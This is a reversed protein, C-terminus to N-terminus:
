SCLIRDFLSSKLARLIKPNLIEAYEASYNQWLLELQMAMRKSKHSPRRTTNDWPARHSTLFHDSRNWSWREVLAFGTLTLDIVAKNSAFNRVQQKGLGCVEKLDKFMEEISFRESYSKLIESPTLTTNTSVFLGWPSASKVISKDPMVKLDVLRSVVVRIPHGDSVHSTLVATKYEVLTERGYMQVRQCNVPYKKDDSIIDNMKLGNGYKRPRGRKGPAPTPLEYLNMNSKFRTVVEVNEERLSEFVTKSVYGRDFLLEIPKGAKKLEPLVAKVMDILMERMTQFKPRRQADIKDLDKQCVYIQNRLPISLTGWRPHEVILSLVVLSHGYFKDDNHNGNSEHFQWGTGEVKPGYRRIPTDDGALCVRTADKVLALIEQITWAAFKDQYRHDCTGLKGIQHYFKRYRNTEKSVRVWQSVPGCVLIVSLIFNPLWNQTPRYLAGQVAIIFNNIWHNADQSNNNKM